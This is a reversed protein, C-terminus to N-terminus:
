GANTYTKGSFLTLAIIQLDFLLSWNDIYYLDYDIRRQMKELTDTEGRYGNVQAWGTLGPKVTHRRSFSQIQPIFMQNHPIAHPRPGVVSMDGRLINLLQPLEDIGTIRFIRGVRTIRADGRQAQRFEAEGGAYMTRFKLVRIPRNNYGHRIQEFFIPGKSDLVIAISAMVMLPSLLILGATAAVVDFLRKISSDFDTLPPRSIELAGTGGLEVIRVHSWMGVHDAPVAYVAAPMDRFVAAVHGLAQLRTQDCLLVIDDAQLARCQEVLLATEAKTEACSPNATTLAPFDRCIIQVCDGTTKLRQIYEDRHSLSGVLLIRRGRIMGSAVASHFKAYSASRIAFTTGLCAFLQLFLTARSYHDSLKFVFLGSMLLLFTLGISASGSWIFRNRRQNQVHVFQGLAASILIETAGIFAAAGAYRGLRLHEPHAFFHYAAAVLLATASVALFEILGITTLAVTLGPRNFHDHLPPANGGLSDQNIAGAAPTLLEGIDNFLRM